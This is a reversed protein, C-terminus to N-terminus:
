CTAINNLSFLRNYFLVHLGNAGALGAVTTLLSVFIPRDPSLLIM